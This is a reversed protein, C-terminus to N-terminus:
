RAVPVGRRPRGLGAPRGPGPAQGVRPGPQVRRAVPLQRRVRRALVRRDCRQDPGGRCAHQRDQGRAAQPLSTWHRGPHYSAEVLHGNVARAFVARHGPDLDGGLAAVRPLREPQGPWAVRHWPHVLCAAAPRPPGTFFATVDGSSQAAAQIGAPRAPWRNSSELYDEDINVTKGGYTVNQGGPVPSHAPAAALGHGAPRTPPTPPTM